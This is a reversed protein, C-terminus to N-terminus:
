RNNKDTNTTITGTVKDTTATRTAKDTTETQQKM